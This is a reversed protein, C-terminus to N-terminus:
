PGIAERHRHSVDAWAMKSLSLVLIFAAGAGERGEGAARTGEPAAPKPCVSAGGAPEPPEEAVIKKNKRTTM